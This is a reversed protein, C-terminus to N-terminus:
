EQFFNCNKMVCVIIRTLSKFMIKSSFYKTKKGFKKTVKAPGASSLSYEGGFSQIERSNADFIKKTETRRQPNKSKKDQNKFTVNKQSGTRIIKKQSSM